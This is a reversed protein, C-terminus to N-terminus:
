FLTSGFCLRLLNGLSITFSGDRQYVVKAGFVIFSIPSLKSYIIFFIHKPHTLNTNRNSEVQNWRSSFFYSVVTKVLFIGSLTLIKRSQSCLSCFQMLPGNQHGVTIWRKFRVVPTSGYYSRWYYPRRHM